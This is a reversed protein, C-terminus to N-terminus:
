RGLLDGETTGPPLPTDALQQAVAARLTALHAAFAEHRAATADIVLLGPWQQIVQNPPGDWSIRYSTQEISKVLAAQVDALSRRGRSRRWPEANWGALRAELRATDILLDQVPYARSDVNQSAHDYTTLTILEDTAVYDLDTFAASGVVNAALDMVTGLTTGNPFDFSLETTREVGELELAPYNVFIPLPSAERLLAILEDLTGDFEFSDLRTARAAHYAVRAPDAPPQATMPTPAAPDLEFDGRQACGALLLAALLYVKFRMARDYLLRAM